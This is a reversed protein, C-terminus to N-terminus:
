GGDLRPLPKWQAAADALSQALQDLATSVARHAAVVGGRADETTSVATQDFDRSLVVRRTAVDILQARLTFRVQSPQVTFDHQLRLLETHLSFHASASSPATVVAQWAASREVTVAILPSLMRAPTDVWESQAFYELKHADRTYIIHASDFGATARTPLVTLTPQVVQRPAATAVSPRTPTATQDLTYFSPLPAAKPLLGSCASLLPALLAVM